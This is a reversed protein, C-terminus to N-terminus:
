RNRPRGDVQDLDISIHLDYLARCATSNRSQDIVDNFRVHIPQSVIHGISTNELTTRWATTQAACWHQMLGLRADHAIASEGTSERLLKLVAQADILYKEFFIGMPREEQAGYEDM